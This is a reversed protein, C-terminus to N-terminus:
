TGVLALATLETSIRPFIQEFSKTEKGKKKENKCHTVSSNFQTFLAGLNTSALVQFSALILSFIRFHPGVLLFVSVRELHYLTIRYTNKKEVVIKYLTM